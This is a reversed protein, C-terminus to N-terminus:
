AAEGALAPKTRAIESARPLVVPAASAEGTARLQEKIEVLLTYHLRLQQERTNLSQQVLKQVRNLSALLGVWAAVILLGLAFASGQDM